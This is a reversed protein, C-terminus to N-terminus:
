QQQPLSPTKSLFVFRFGPDAEGYGLRRSTKPQVLELKLDTPGETLDVGKLQVSDEAPKGQTRAVEDGNALLVFASDQDFLDRQIEAIEIDYKGSQRVDTLFGRQEDAHWYKLRVSPQRSSGIWVRSGEFSTRTSVDAFWEKYAARLGALVQPMEGALNEAEGPDANLDYLEDGNVMKFQPGTASSNTWIDPRAAREFKNFLIRDPLSGEQGLLRASLDIGDITLAQPPEINLMSLLTPFFDMVSTREAIDVGARIREPWRWFSPVRVGGEYVTGKVGRLGYNYRKTETEKDLPHRQQPGNDSLFVVLTSDDLGLEKLHALLRGINADVRQIMAYVEQDGRTLRSHQLFPEVDEDPIQKRNPFDHPLYSSVFCFFPEAQHEEIFKIAHDFILDDQFGELRVSEGNREYGSDFRTSTDTWLFTEEFGQDQPRQPANEGLHWKGFLGTRYGNELLIEAVTLESARMNERGKWTDWVGTRYPYRGTMLSARTPACVPSTYFNHLRTSTEYLQDLHPTRVIENGYAGFDGMGQDDSVILVVSPRDNAAGDALGLALCVLIITRLRFKLFTNM